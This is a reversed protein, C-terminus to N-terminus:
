EYDLIFKEFLSIEATTLKGERDRERLIGRFTNSMWEGMPIDVILGLAKEVNWQIMGEHHRAEIEKAEEDTLGLLLTTRYVEKIGSYSSEEPLLELLKLREPVSLKM